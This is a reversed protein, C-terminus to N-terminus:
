FEKLKLIANPKNEHECWHAFASGCKQWTSQTPNKGFFEETAQTYLACQFCPRSSGYGWLYWYSYYIFKTLFSGSLVSLEPNPSLSFAHSVKFSFIYYKALIQYRTFSDMPPISGVTMKAYLRSKKKGQSKLILWSRWPWWLSLCRQTYLPCEQNPSM